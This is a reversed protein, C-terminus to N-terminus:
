TISTYIPVFGISAGTADFVEMKRSLTGLTTAAASNGVGIGNNATFKVNCRAVTASHRFLEVDYATGLALGAAGVGGMQNGVRGVITGTHDKWVFSFQQATYLSGGTGTNHGMAQGARSNFGWMRGQSWYEAQGAAAVAVNGSEASNADSFTIKGRGDLKWVSAGPSVAASAPREFAWYDSNALSASDPKVLNAITNFTTPGLLNPYGAVGAKLSNIVDYSSLEAGFVRARNGPDVLYPRASPALTPFVRINDCSTDIFVSAVTGAGADYMDNGLLTAHAANKLYVGYKYNTLEILNGVILAGVSFGTPAIPAGDVEIAAGTASSNGCTSWMTNNFIRVANSYRQLVALRRIGNCFVGQIITHYGQFGCDASRRDFGPDDEHGTQGGLVFADEASLSVNAAGDFALGEGTQITTFTTAVFPKTNGSGVKSAMTFGYLCLLGLGRTDIKAVGPGTEATWTIGAGSVARKGQGNAYGGSGQIVLTPQVGATSATSDNPLQLAETCRYWGSLYITGGTNYWSTIAAKIAATSDVGAEAAARTTYVTAGFKEPYIRDGMDFDSQFVLVGSTKRYLIQHGSRSEDTLVQVFEDAPISALAATADAKTLYIYRSAATSLAADRAAGAAAAAATAINAQATATTAAPSAIGAATSATSASAAAAAAAAQAADRAAEAAPTIDGTEGKLATGPIYPDVDDGIPVGKFNTQVVRYIATEDLYIDPYKGAQNAQVPNPLPITAAADAYIPAPVSTGTTYFYLLANPVAVGINSFAPVFPNYYLKTAM